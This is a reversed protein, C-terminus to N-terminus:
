KAVIKAKVHRKGKGKWAHLAISYQYQYEKGTQQRRTETPYIVRIRKRM